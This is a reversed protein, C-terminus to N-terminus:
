LIQPCFCSLILHSKWPKFYRNRNKYEKRHDQNPKRDNQVTRIFLLFGNFDSHHTDEFLIRKGVLGFLRAPNKLEELLNAIDGGMATRRGRQPLLHNLGTEQVGIGRRNVGADLNKQKNDTEEELVMVGSEEDEVNLYVEGNSM